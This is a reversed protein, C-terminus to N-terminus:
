FAEDLGYVNEYVAILKTPETKLRAEFAAVAEQEAAPLPEWDDQEDVWTRLADHHMAERVALMHSCASYGWVQYAPCDCGRGDARVQHVTGSGASAMAVYRVGRLRYYRWENRLELHAQASATMSETPIRQHAM